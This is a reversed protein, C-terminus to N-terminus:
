LEKLYQLAPELIINEGSRFRRFAQDIRRPSLSLNYILNYNDILRKAREWELVGTNSLDCLYLANELKRFRDIWLEPQEDKMMARHEGPESAPRYKFATVPGEPASTTSTKPQLNKESTKVYETNRQTGEPINVLNEQVEKKNKGAPMDCQLDSSARNLWKVFNKWKIEGRYGLDQHHLLTELLTMTIHLGHKSCISMIKPLPLCGSFSHDEKQFNLNLCDVSFKGQYTRLAMKLIQLLSKNVDSLLSSDQPPTSQKDHSLSPTKRPNSYVATGNQQLNDKTAEKLFCLLEGYNVGEPSDRRSFRQCLLKLTPLPLPVKHRLFLRNLQSQHLFGSSIPDLTKLEKQLKDLLNSSLPRSNLERRILAILFSDERTMVSPRRVIEVAQGSNNKTNELCWDISKRRPLSHMYSLSQDGAPESSCHVNARHSIMDDLFRNGLVTTLFKQDSEPKQSSRPYKSEGKEAPHASIQQESSDTPGPLDRRVQRSGDTGPEQLPTQPETKLKENQRIVPKEVFYRFHKSGIIKVIMEPKPALSPPTKWPSSM